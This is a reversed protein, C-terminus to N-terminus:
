AKDDVQRDLVEWVTGFVEQRELLQGRMLLDFTREPPGFHELADDCYGFRLLNSGLWAALSGGSIDPEITSTLEERTAGLCADIIHSLGAQAFVYRWDDPLLDGNQHAAFVLSGVWSPTQSRLRLYEDGNRRTASEFGAQAVRALEIMPPTLVDTPMCRSQAPARRITLCTFASQRFRKPM